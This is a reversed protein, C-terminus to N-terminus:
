GPHHMRRRKFEREFSQGANGANPLKLDGNRGSHRHRRCWSAFVRILGYDEPVATCDVVTLPKNNERSHAYITRAVTDKGSGTEGQVLVTANCGAALGIMKEVQRMAPCNGILLSDTEQKTDLVCVPQRPASIARSIVSDLDQMSVSNSLHDFAGLKM